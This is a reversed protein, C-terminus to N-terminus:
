SEIGAATSSQPLVSRCADHITKAMAARGTTLLDDSFVEAAVFPDSGIHELAEWVAAYDVAGSGPVQRSHMAETEVQDMPMDIAASPDCIQVYAIRDGPLSRLLELDPGGPQRVWHFTDLLITANPEGADIILNNAAAMTSVGTWPLFELSIVLDAEAARAAISALGEVAAARDEIPGLCAAGIIAAGLDQAATILGDIEQTVRESPGTTWGIAAEVAGVSLGSDKVVNIAGDGAFMLHFPYLSVADFGASATADLYDRFTEADVGMVDELLTSPCNGLSTIHM